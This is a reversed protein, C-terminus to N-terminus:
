LKAGLKNPTRLYFHYDIDKKFYIRMYYSCNLEFLIYSTSANKNNNYVFETMPLLKEQSTQEFTTFVKFYANM